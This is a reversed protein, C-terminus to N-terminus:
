WSEGNIVRQALKEYREAMARHNWIVKMSDRCRVPPINEIYRLVINMDTLSDAMFGNMYDTIYEPICGNRTAIVPTGCALAELVVVAGAEVWNRAGVPHVLCKAKQLLELKETGGVDGLYRVHEMAEMEALIPWYKDDWKPGCVVVPLNALKGLEAVWHPRKETIVSGMYLLYDERPGDYFPYEDLNLGYSAVPAAPRGIFAKQAASIFVPNHNYGVTMVQWVSFQPVQDRYTRAVVKDHSMDILVDAGGIHDRAIRAFEQETEGTVIGPYTSGSKGIVILEHGRERLGDAVWAVAREMGGYCAPPTEVGATSVLLIKV